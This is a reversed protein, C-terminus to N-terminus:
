FSANLGFTITRARPYSSYDFGGTLVSNYNNVEPDQGSYKTWTFVNQM